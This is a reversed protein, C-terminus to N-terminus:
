KKNAMEKLLVKALKQGSSRFGDGWLNSMSGFTGGNGILTFSAVQRGSKTEKVTCKVTQDGKKNINLPTIVLTYKLESERTLYLQKKNLRKNAETLMDDKLRPQLEDKYENQANYDPQETNRFKYWAELDMDCIKIQSWDEVVNLRKQGAIESLNGEMQDQANVTLAMLLATTMLIFKKM